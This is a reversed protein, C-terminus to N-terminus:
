HYSYVKQDFCEFFCDFGLILFNLILFLIWEKKLLEEYTSSMKKLNQYLQCLLIVM